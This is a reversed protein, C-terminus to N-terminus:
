RPPTITTTMEAGTRTIIKVAINNPPQPASFPQSSLGCLAAAAEPDLDRGFTKLLRKIQADGRKYGPLYILRPFFATGDHGTDIMWCDVDAPKSNRLEGSVPDYTDFGHLRVVLRGDADTECADGATLAACNVVVEPGVGGVAGPDRAIRGLEVQWGPEAGTDAHLFLRWDGRAVRAGANRQRGGGPDSTVGRV